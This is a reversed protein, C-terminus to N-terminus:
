LKNQKDECIKDVAQRYKLAVDLMEYTSNWRTRVDRPLLRESLGVEACVAKWAPLLCTTSHIIKFSLTHIKALVLKVPRVEQNFQTREAPSMRKVEDFENDPDDD